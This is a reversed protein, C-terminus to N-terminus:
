SLVWLCYIHVFEHKAYKRTAVSHFPILFSLVIQFSMSVSFFFFSPFIRGCFLLLLMSTPPQYRITIAM